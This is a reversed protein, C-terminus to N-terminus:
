ILSLRGQLRRIYKKSFEQISINLLKALAVIEEENVWVAGPSGTCCKGCGTCQFKVGESYWQNMIVSVRKRSLIPQEVGSSLSQSQFFQFFVRTLIEFYHDEGEQRQGCIM